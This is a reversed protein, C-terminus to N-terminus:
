KLFHALCATTGNIIIMEVICRLFIVILIESEFLLRTNKREKNDLLHHRSRSKM